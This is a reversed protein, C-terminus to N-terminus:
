LWKNIKRRSVTRFYECFLVSACEGMIGADGEVIWPPDQRDCWRLAEDQKFGQNRSKRQGRLNM